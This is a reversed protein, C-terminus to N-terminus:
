VRKPKSSYTELTSKDVSDSSPISLISMTRSAVILALALKKISPYKPEVGQPVKNLKMGLRRIMDFCEQLDQVHNEKNHSKVLVGDIYVLPCKATASFAKNQLSITKEQDEPELSIQNYGQFGDLFSIMECGTTSDILADIRPFPYSDKEPNIGVLDHMTWAFVNSTTRLFQVLREEMEQVMTTGISTTKGPEGEVVQIDKLEETAAVKEEEIRRKKLQQKPNDSHPRHHLM